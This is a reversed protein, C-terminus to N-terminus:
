NVVVEDGEDLGDVVRYYDSNSRDSVIYRKRKIGDKLLTVFYKNNEVLYSDQEVSVADYPVLLVDDMKLRQFEVFITSDWNADAPPDIPEIYLDPTTSKELFNPASIIRGRIRTDLENMSKGLGISVEMNYRLNIGGLGGENPITIIFDKKQSIAAMQTGANVLDGEITETDLEVIYGSVPARVKSQETEKLFDEYRKRTEKVTKETKQFQELDLRTKGLRAKAIEKESGNPMLRIRNEQEAIDARKSNLTARFSEEASEAAAKHEVLNVADYDVYYTTIVDGKKVEQGLTVKHELFIANDADLTASEKDLYVLEGNQFGPDEFTGRVVKATEIVETEEGEGTSEYLMAERPEGNGGQDFPNLGCGTMMSLVLLCAVGKTAKTRFMYWM